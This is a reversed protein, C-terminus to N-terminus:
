ADERSEGRYANGGLGDSGAVRLGEESGRELGEVIDDVHAAINWIKYSPFRFRKVLKLNKMITVVAEGKVDLAEAAHFHYGRHDGDFITEGFEMGNASM